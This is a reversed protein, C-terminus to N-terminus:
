LSPSCCVPKSAPVSGQRAAKEPVYQIYPGAVTLQFVNDALPLMDCNSSLAKRAMPLPSANLADLNATNTEGTVGIAPRSLAEIATYETFLMFTGNILVDDQQVRMYWFM